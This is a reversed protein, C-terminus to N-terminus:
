CQEDTIPSLTQRQKCKHIEKKDLQKKHAAENVCRVSDEVASSLKYYGQEVGSVFPANFLTFLLSLFFSHNLM